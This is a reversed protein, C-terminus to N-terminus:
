YNQLIKCHSIYYFVIFILFIKGIFPLSGIAERSSGPSIMCEKLIEFIEGYGIINVCNIEQIKELIAKNELLIKIVGEIVSGLCFKYVGLVFHADMTCFESNNKTSFTIEESRFLNGGYFEFFSDCFEKLDGVVLGLGARNVCNMFSEYHFAMTFPLGKANGEYLECNYPFYQSLYLLIAQELKFPPMSQLVGYTIISSIASALMNEAGPPGFRLNKFLKGRIEDMLVLSRLLLLGSVWKRQHFASIVVPYGDCYSLFQSKKGKYDLFVGYNRWQEQLICSMLVAKPSPAKSIPKLSGLFRSFYPTSIDAYKYSIEDCEMSIPFYFDSLTKLGTQSCLLSDIFLLKSRSQVEANLQANKIFRDAFIILEQFFDSSPRLVQTSFHHVKRLSFLM